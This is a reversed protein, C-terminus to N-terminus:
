KNKKNDKAAQIIKGAVSVVTKVIGSVKSPLFAAVESVVLAIIIWNEHLNEIFNGFVSVFM